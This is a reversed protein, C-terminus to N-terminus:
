SLSLPTRAPADSRFCGVHGTPQPVHPPPENKLIAEMREATRQYCVAKEAAFDINALVWNNVDICTNYREWYERQPMQQIYDLLSEVDSFEAADLFSDQPFTDYIRNGKGYYIPLCGGDIAQWIKETCYHDFTTNELGMCIDYNALLEQKRNAWSGSRSDEQSIGTPWNRGYVHFMGRQHGEMLLKVRLHNLDCDVGRIIWPASEVYGMLGVCRATGPMPCDSLKKHPLPRNIAWQSNSYNSTFVDHTYVNMMHMPPQGLSWSFMRETERSYRPENTWFLLRARNPYNWLTQLKNRRSHWEPTLADTVFLDCPETRDVYVIEQEQNFKQSSPKNLDFLTSFMASLKCVRIM